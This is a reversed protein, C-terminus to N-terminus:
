RRQETVHVYSNAASNITLTGATLSYIAISFTHSGAALAGANMYYTWSLHMTKLGSPPTDVYSMQLITGTGDIALATYIGASAASHYFCIAGEVRIEAGTTTVTVSIPTNVWASTTTSSWTPASFYTGIRLQASGAALGATPIPKGKGAAAHDHGTAANFLASLTALATALGNTLYNETDDTDQATALGLDPTAGSM